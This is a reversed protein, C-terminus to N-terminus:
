WIRKSRARPKGTVVVWSSVVKVRRAELVQARTLRPGSGVSAAPLGEPELKADINGALSAKTKETSLQADALRLHLRM